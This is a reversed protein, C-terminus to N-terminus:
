CTPTKHSNPAYQQRRSEIELKVIEQHNEIERMMDTKERDETVPKRSKLAERLVLEAYPEARGSLSLQSQSFSMIRQLDSARVSRTITEESQVLYASWVSAILSYEDVDKAPTAIKHLRKLYQQKYNKEENSLSCRILELWCWEPITEDLEDVAKLVDQNSVVTGAPNLFQDLREQLKEVRPFPQASVFGEFQRRAWYPGTSGILVIVLHILQLWWFQTAAEASKKQHWLIFVTSIALLFWTLIVTARTVTDWPQFDRPGKHQQFSSPFPLLDQNSNQELVREVQRSYFSQHEELTSQLRVSTFGLLFTTISVIGLLEELDLLQKATMSKYMPGLFDLHNRRIAVYLLGGLALGAAVAFLTRNRRHQM